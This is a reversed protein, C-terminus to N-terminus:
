KKKVAFYYGAWIAIAYFVLNIRSSFSDRIIAMTLQIDSLLLKLTDFYTWHCLQWFVAQSLFAGIVCGVFACIAGIIGNIGYIKENSKSVFNIVSGVVFGVLIAWLGIMYGIIATFFPSV